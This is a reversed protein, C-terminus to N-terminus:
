ALTKLDQESIEGFLTSKAFVLRSQIIVTLILRVNVLVSRLKALIIGWM